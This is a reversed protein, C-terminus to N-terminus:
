NEEGTAQAVYKSLFSTKQLLHVNHLSLTRRNLLYIVCSGQCLFDNIASKRLVISEAKLKVNDYMFYVRLVFDTPEQM